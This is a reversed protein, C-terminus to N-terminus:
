CTRKLPYSTKNRGSCPFSKEQENLLNKNQRSILSKFDLLSSYSVKVNSLNFLKHLQYTKSFHKTLLSFFNKGIKTSVNLSFAPNFGMFTKKIKATIQQQPRIKSSKFQSKINLDM